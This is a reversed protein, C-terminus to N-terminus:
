RQELKFEKFLNTGNNDFCEKILIKGQSIQFEGNKKNLKIYKNLLLTYGNNTIQGIDIYSTSIKSKTIYFLRGSAGLHLKLNNNCNYVKSLSRIDQYYINRFRINDYIDTAQGKKYSNIKKSLKQHNKKMFDSIQNYEEVSFLKPSLYLDYYYKGYGSHKKTEDAIKNMRLAKKYYNNKMNIENQTIIIEKREGGNIYFFSNDINAGGRAGTNFDLNITFILKGTGTKVEIVHSKVPALGFFGRVYLMDDSKYFNIYVVYLLLSAIVSIAIIPMPRQKPETYKLIAYIGFGYIFLILGVVFMLAGMMFLAILGM